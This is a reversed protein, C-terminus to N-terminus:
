ERAIETFFPATGEMKIYVAYGGLLAETDKLLQPGLADTSVHVIHRNVM